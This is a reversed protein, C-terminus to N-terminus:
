PDLLSPRGADRSMREEDMREGVDDVHLSWTEDDVESRFIGM